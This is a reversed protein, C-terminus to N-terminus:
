NRPPRQMIAAIEKHVKSRQQAHLCGCPLSIFFASELAGLTTAECVHLLLGDSNEFSFQEIADTLTAHCALLLSCHDM